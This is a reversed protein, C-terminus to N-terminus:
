LKLTSITELDEEYDELDYHVPIDRGALMWQFQYVPLKALRAAQGMTLKGKQFFLVAIEVLLEQETLRTARIYEEPINLVM